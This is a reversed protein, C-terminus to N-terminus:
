EGFVAKHMYDISNDSIAAIMLHYRFDKGGFDYFEVEGGYHDKTEGDGFLARAFDHNFIVTNLELENGRRVWKTDDEEQTKDYFIITDEGWIAWNPWGHADWGGDIAKQVLARIKDARTM